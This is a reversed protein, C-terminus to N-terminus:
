PQRAGAGLQCTCSSRPVQVRASAVAARELPAAALGRYACRKYLISSMGGGGAM